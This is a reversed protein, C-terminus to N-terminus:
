RSNEAFSYIFNEKIILIKQNAKLNEARLLFDERTIEKDREIAGKAINGLDTWNIGM